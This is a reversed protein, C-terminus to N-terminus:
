RRFLEMMMLVFINLAVIGNNGAPHISILGDAISCSENTVRFKSFM